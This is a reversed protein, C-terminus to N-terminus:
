LLIPVEKFFFLSIFLVNCKTYKKKKTNINLVTYKYETNLLISYTIQLKKNLNIYIFRYNNRFLANQIISLGHQLSQTIHIKKSTM